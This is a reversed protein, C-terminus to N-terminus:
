ESETGNDCCRFGSAPRYTGGDFECSLMYYPAGPSSCNYAGGRLHPLVSYSGTETYTVSTDVWEWLNGSLDYVGWHSTCGAFSGTPVVHFPYCYPCDYFCGNYVSDCFSDISNCTAANYEDGYCYATGNPGSCAYQWESLTCLRKGRSACARRATEYTVGAWPIVGKRVTGLSDLFGATGSDADIRAAEYRDICFRNDVVTMGGPCALNKKKDPLDSETYCVGSICTGAACDEADSCQERVLCGTAVIVVGM